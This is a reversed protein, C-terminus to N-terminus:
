AGLASIIEAPVLNVRVRWRALYSGDAPLLPDLLVYPGGSRKRLPDLVVPDGMELLELMFGLRKCVAAVGLEVAYASLRRLDIDGRRRWLGAAVEVVGGCYRPKELGDVVTREINSVRVADQKTVWVSEIGFARDPRWRVFRYETGLVWLPRRLVPTSVTVALQPHTTMRHIEMASGHSVYYDHPYIIERGLVYPNGLYTKERGLESPVLVYLGPKVRTAIGRQVLKRVFSRASPPSQGTITEVDHLRFVTKGSDYLAATLGAAQRGLTKDM